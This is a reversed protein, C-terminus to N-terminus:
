DQETRRKQRLTPRDTRSKNRFRKEQANSTSKHDPIAAAPNKSSGPLSHYSKLGPDLRFSCSMPRYHRTAALTSRHPIHCKRLLLAGDLQRLRSSGPVGSREPVNDSTLFRTRSRFFLCTKGDRQITFLSVDFSSTVLPPSPM